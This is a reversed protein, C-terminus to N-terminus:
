GIRPGDGNILTLVLPGQHMRDPTFIHTTTSGGTPDLLLYAM